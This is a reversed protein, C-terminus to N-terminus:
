FFDYDNSNDDLYDDLYDDYDYYSPKYHRPKYNRVSCYNYVVVYEPYFEDDYYKVYVNNGSTTTDYPTQPIKTTESGHITRGILVKAVILARKNETRGRCGEQNAYTSFPTFSM